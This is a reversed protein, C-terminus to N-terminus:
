ITECNQYIVRNETYKKMRYNILSRSSEAKNIKFISCPKLKYVDKYITMPASIYGQYLYQNVASNNIVKNNPTMLSKLESSFALYKDNEFWYIPKKRSSGYCFCIKFNKIGYRM